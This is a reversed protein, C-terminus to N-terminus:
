RLQAAFPGIEDQMQISSLTFLLLGQTNWTKPLNGGRGLARKRFFIKVRPRLDVQKVTLSEAMPKTAMSILVVLRAQKLLSCLRACGSTNTEQPLQISAKSMVLV